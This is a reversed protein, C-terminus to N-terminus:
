IGTHGRIYDDYHGALLSDLFADEEQVVPTTFCFCQPHPKNPVQNRPFVGPGLKFGDEKALDDCEDAKPHSRSLHWKMGDVWPADEVQARAIQHYSANIETRALRLSAFRVGGPVAPDFFPRVERAFERVSLGRALASNIQRELVSNTWAQTRYIRQSLPVPGGPSLMRATAADLTRLATQAISDRLAPVLAQYEPPAGAFLVNTIDGNLRIAAAAADIRGAEVILGVKKYIESLERLLQRRVAQLQEVRVANGIGSRGAMEKLMKNINKLSDELVRLIKRDAETQVRLYAKLWDDPTPKAM